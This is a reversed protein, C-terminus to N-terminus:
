DDETSQTEIVEFPYTSGDANHGRRLDQTQLHFTRPMSVVCDLEGNRMAHKVGRMVEGTFELPRTEQASLPLGAVRRSYNLELNRPGHITLRNYTGKRRWETGFKDLFSDGTIHPVKSMNLIVSDTDVYVLAAGNMVMENWLRARCESMVWGPIQPLSETSEAMDGLLMRRNGALLMDTRVDDDLDLYSVLRVDPPDQPGFYHWQRFRLGLRGVLCRSWHKLVRQAVPGYVQTQGDLGALVWTCFDRLAPARHYTYARHFEVKAAHQLALKLEPDYLQTRFTGIPWMTRGGVHYPVCEVATSVTVDALVSYSEMARSVTRATPRMIESRAICPVECDRGITAYAAHLDYEVYTASPLRGHRWAEARGTHMARREADLRDTDDHVLLRVSGFRRRYAAYSQGSGTPRFPGLNEGHIWDFIQMVAARIVQARALAANQPYTAGAPFADPILGFAAVDQRIKEWAVPAWSQLDCCVLTRTGNRLSCWAATRELVIRDLDWGLAPLHTLLQALRIQEALDWTFLVVRRGQPCWSAVSAWLAEPDDYTDLTDRRERKRATWWTKGLAAAQFRLEHHERRRVAQGHCALWLLRQPTSTTKLSKLYHPPDRLM